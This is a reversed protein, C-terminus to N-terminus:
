PIVLIRKNNMSMLNQLPASISEQYQGTPYYGDNKILSPM